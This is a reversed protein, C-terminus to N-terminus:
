MGSEGEEVIAQMLLGACKAVVMCPHTFLRFFAHELGCVAALTFTFADADTTDSNPTTLVFCLGELLQALLLAGTGCLLHTRLLAVLADVRKLEALQARSGLVLRKCAQEQALDTITPSPM